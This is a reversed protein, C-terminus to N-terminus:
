SNSSRFEIHQQLRRLLSSAHASIAPFDVAKLEDIRKNTADIAEQLEVDIQKQRRM